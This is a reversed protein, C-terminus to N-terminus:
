RAKAARGRAAHRRVRKRIGEVELPTSEKQRLDRLDAELRDLTQKRARERAEPARAEVAQLRADADAAFRHVDKLVTTLNNDPLNPRAAIEGLERIADLAELMRAERDFHPRMWATPFDRHEVLSRVADRLLERPGTDRGWRKMHLVRAVGPPPDALARGFWADFTQNVLSEVEDDSCVEFLPDIGAEIPRERLMEACFGHITGVFALELEALARIFRPESEPDAERRARELEDRLRIKMEGAAKETFTVAVM